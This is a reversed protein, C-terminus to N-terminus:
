QYFCCLLYYIFANKPVYLVFVINQLIGDLACPMLGYDVFLVVIGYMEHNGFEECTNFKNYSVFIIKMNLNRLVKKVRKLPTATMIVSKSTSAVTPTKVIDSFTVPTRKQGNQNSPLVPSKTATSRMTNSPIEPPM